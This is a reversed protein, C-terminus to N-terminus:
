TAITVAAVIGAVLPLALAVVIWRARRDLPETLLVPEAHRRYEPPVTALDTRLEISSRELRTRSWVLVVALLGAFLAGQGILRLQEGFGTREALAGAFATTIIGASAAVALAAASVLSAQGLRAIVGARAGLDREDATITTWASGALTLVWPSALVVGGASGLWQGVELRADRDASPQLGTWVLVASTAVAATIIPPWRIRVGDRFYRRVAGAGLVGLAASLSWLLTTATVWGDLDADAADIGSAFWSFVFWAVLGAVLAAAGAEALARRRPLMSPPSVPELLGRRAARGRDIEDLHSRLHTAITDLEDTGDFRLAHKDVLPVLAAPLMSASLPAAGDVLVPLVVVERSLAAGIERAVWDDPECIRSSGDARHGAWEPGIVALLVDCGDVAADLADPFSDGARLETDYYATRVETVEDLRALRESIWGVAYPGDARRYSLFVRAM